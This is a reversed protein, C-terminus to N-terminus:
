RQNLLFWQQNLVKFHRMIVTYVFNVIVVCNPELYKEEVNPQNTWIQRLWRWENKFGEKSSLLAVLTEIKLKNRHATKTLKVEGFPRVVKVNSFPLIM